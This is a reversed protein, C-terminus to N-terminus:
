NETPRKRLPRQLARQEITRKTFREYYRQGITQIVSLVKPAVFANVGSRFLSAATVDTGVNWFYAGSGEIAILIGRERSPMSLNDSSVVFMRKGNPLAIVTSGTEFLTDIQPAYDNDMFVM